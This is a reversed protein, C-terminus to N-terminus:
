ERPRMLESRLIPGLARPDNVDVEQVRRGGIDIRDKGRLELTEIGRLKRLSEMGTAYVLPLHEGLQIFHHHFHIHLIRLRQCDMLAPLADFFIGSYKFSIEEMFRYRSSCATIFYRLSTISQFILHNESYYINVAENYIVKSTALLALPSPGSNVNAMDPASWFPSVFPKIQVPEPLVLVHRYIKERLEPPFKSLLGLNTPQVNNTTM